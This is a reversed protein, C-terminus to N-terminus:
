KKVELYDLITDRAEEFSYCVTTAYGQCHLRELWDEQAPTCKNKNFKMEIFLGAMGGRHAPKPVALFLDPVGKKLGESVEWWGTKRKGGNPIAFLLKLAPIWNENDKAWAVLAVQESHESMRGGQKLNLGSFGGGSPLQTRIFYFDLNLWM